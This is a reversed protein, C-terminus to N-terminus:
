YNGGRLVTLKYLQSELNNELRIRGLLNSKEYNQSAKEAAQNM